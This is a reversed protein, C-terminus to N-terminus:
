QALLLEALQTELMKYFRNTGPERAVEGLARATQLMALLRKGTLVPAPVPSNTDVLLETVSVGLLQQWRYLDSLLMDCTPKELLRIQEATFGSRNAAERVSVHKRRRLEAVRHLRRISGTKAPVMTNRVASFQLSANM